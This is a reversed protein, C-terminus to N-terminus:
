NANQQNSNHVNHKNKLSSGIEVRQRTKRKRGNTTNKTKNKRLEKFNQKQLHITILYKGCMNLTNIYTDLSLREYSMKSRKVGGM